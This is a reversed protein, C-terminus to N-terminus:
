ASEEMLDAVTELDSYHVKKTGIQQYDEHGKGAVLIMDNAASHTLAFKIANKRKQIYNTDKNTMGQRIM